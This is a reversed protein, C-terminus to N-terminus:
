GPAQEPNALQYLRTMEAVAEAHTMDKGDVKGTAGKTLWVKKFDDNAQLKAIQAKAAAPDMGDGSPTSGGKLVGDERFQKGLKSLARLLEANDGTAKGDKVINLEAILKDGGLHRAAAQADALNEDYTAGWDKRLSELQGTAYESARKTAEGMAEATMEDIAPRIADFQKQTLNAKHLVPMIKAQFAKDTEGYESGDAKKGIVYKDASEPRGLKGWFESQGKEDDDKPMALIQGKDMGLMKKQNVFQSLLGDINKIDHFSADSRYQEPLQDSLPKASDFTFVAAGGGGGAAGDGGGAAGDGTGSMTLPSIHGNLFKRLSM